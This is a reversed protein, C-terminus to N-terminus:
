IRLISRLLCSRTKWRRGSSVRREARGWIGRGVVVQLAEAGKVAKEEFAGDEVAVRATFLYLALERIRASLMELFM